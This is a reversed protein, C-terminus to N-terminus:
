LGESDRLVFSLAYFSFFEGDIEGLLKLMDPPIWARSLHDVLDVYEIGPRASLRVM